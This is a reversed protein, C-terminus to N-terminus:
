IGVPRSWLRHHHRAYDDSIVFHLLKIAHPKGALREITAGESRLLEGVAVNPSSCLLLGAQDARHLEAQRYRAWLEPSTMPMNEGELARRLRRPLGKSVGKRLRQVEPDIPRATCLATLLRDMDSDDLRDFLVGASVAGCLARGVWFRFKPSRPAELLGPAVFLAVPQGVSARANVASADVTIKLTGVGLADAIRQASLAAPHETTLIQGTTDPYVQGLHQVAPTLIAAMSRLEPPLPLSQVDLTGLPFGDNELSAAIMHEEGSSKGFLEVVSAAAAALTPQQLAACTRALGRYADIADIRQGLVKRFESAAADHKNDAELARAFLLQVETNSPEAIMSERLYDVARTAEFGEDLLLRAVLVRLPLILEARSTTRVIQDAVQLLRQQEKRHRYGDVITSLADAHAAAASIAEIEYRRRLEEDRLGVRAVEALDALAEARLEPEQEKALDELIERAEQWKGSDVYLQVLLRKAEVHDPQQELVQALAQQARAPEHLRELWIEALFLRARTKLEVETAREILLTLTTTADSWRERTCHLDALDALADVDHPDLALLESLEAIARAPDGLEDRLLLAHKRLLACKAKRDLTAGVRRTYLRSLEEHMGNRRLIVEASDFAQANTPDDGLALKLCALARQDDGVKSSWLEASRLCARLRNQPDRAARALQDTLAALSSWQQDAEAVHCLLKLVPLSQTDLQLASKAVQAAKDGLDAQLYAMAAACLRQSKAAPDFEIQAEKEYLQALAETAGIQILAREHSWIVAPDDARREYAARSSQLHGAGGNGFEFMHAAEILQAVALSTEACREGKEQIEDALTEAGLLRSIRTEEERLRNGFPSGDAALRILAPDPTQKLRYEQIQSILLSLHARSEASQTEEVLASLAEVAGAFDGQRLRVRLLGYGAELFDHCAARAKDYYGAARDLDKIHIEAIEAARSLADARAVPETRVKSLRELMTALESWRQGNRLLRELNTLAPVSGDDRKLAEKYAVIAGSTDGLQEEQIVAIRCFLTAADPREIAVKVEHQHLAILDAWRGLRHYIRGAARVAAVCTSEEEIVERYIALARDHEDLNRDFIGAARLMLAQREAPDTTDKAEELLLTALEAHRGVQEYLEALAAAPGRTRDVARAVTLTEIAEDTAGLASAQLTALEVLLTHRSKIDATAEVQSSLLEALESHRGLQRLLRRLGWFAMPMGPQLDLARRYSDIAEDARELRTLIEAMELVRIARLNSAATGETETRHIHLLQEHDGLQHYITGLAQVAPPYDPYTELAALYVAVADPLNNQRVHLLWGIRCLLAARGRTDSTHGLLQRLTVILDDTRDTATYLDTLRQLASRDMPSARHAGTLCRAASETDGTLELHLIGARLLHRAEVLEDNALEAWRELFASLETVRGTREYLLCLSMVAPLHEADADIARKYAAEAGEDDDLQFERITALSYLFIAREQPVGLTEVLQALTEARRKPQGLQLHLGARLSLAIVNGPQLALAQELLSLAKKKDGGHFRMLSAAEILLATRTVNEGGLKLEREILTMARDFDGLQLAIRRAVALVNPSDPCLKIAEDIQPQISELGADRRHDVLAAELRMMAAREPQQEALAKAEALYFAGDGATSLVSRSALERQTEAGLELLDSDDLVDTDDINFSKNPEDSRAPAQPAM